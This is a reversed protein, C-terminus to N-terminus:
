CPNRDMGGAHMPRIFHSKMGIYARGSVANRRQSTPNKSQSELSNKPWLINPIGFNGHGVIRLEHWHVEAQSEGTRRWSRNGFWWCESGRTRTVSLSNSRQPLGGCVVPDLQPCCCCWEHFIRVPM